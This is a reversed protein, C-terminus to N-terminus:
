GAKLVLPCWAHTAGEFPVNTIEQQRLRRDSREARTLPKARPKPREAKAKWAAEQEEFHREQEEVRKDRGGVGIGRRDRPLTNRGEADDQGRLIDADDTGMWDVGEQEEPTEDDLGREYLYQDVLYKTPDKAWVCRRTWSTRQRHLIPRCQRGDHNLNSRAPMIRQSTSAMPCMM